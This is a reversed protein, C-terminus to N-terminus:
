PDSYPHLSPSLSLALLFFSSFSSLSPFRKERVAAWPGRTIDSGCPWSPVSDSKSHVGRPEGVGVGAKVQSGPMEGTRSTVESDEVEVTM